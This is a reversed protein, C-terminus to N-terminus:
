VVVRRPDPDVEEISVLGFIWAFFALGCDDCARAKARLIAESEDHCDIIGVRNDVLVVKYDPM